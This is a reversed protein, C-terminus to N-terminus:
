LLMSLFALKRYRVPTTWLATSFYFFYTSPLFSVAYKMISSNETEAETETERTEVLEILCFSLFFSSLLYSVTYEKYEITISRCTVLLDLSLLAKSVTRKLRSM